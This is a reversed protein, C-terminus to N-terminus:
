GDRYPRGEGATIGGIDNGKGAERFEADSGEVSQSVEESRLFGDVDGAILQGFGRAKFEPAADGPPLHVKGFWEGIGVGCRRGDDRKAGAVRRGHDGESVGGEGAEEAGSGIDKAM